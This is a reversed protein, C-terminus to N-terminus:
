NLTTKFLYRELIKRNKLNSQLLYLCLLSVRPQVQQYTVEYFSFANASDASFNPVPKINCNKISNAVLLYTCYNDLAGKIVNSTKHCLPCNIKCQSYNEHFKYFVNNKM